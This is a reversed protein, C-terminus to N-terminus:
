KIAFLRNYMAPYDRKLNECLDTYFTTWERASMESAGQGSAVAIAFGTRWSLPINLEKEAKMSRVTTYLRGVGTHGSLPYATNLKKLLEEKVFANLEYNLNFTIIRNIVQPDLAHEFPILLLWKSQTQVIFPGEARNLAYSVGIFSKNTDFHLIQYDKSKSFDFLTNLNSHTIQFLYSNDALKLEHIKITTEEFPLLIADLIASETKPFFLQFHTNM